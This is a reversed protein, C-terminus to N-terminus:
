NQLPRQGMPMQIPKTCGWHFNHGVECGYCWKCCSVFGYICLNPSKIDSSPTIRVRPIKMKANGRGEFGQISIYFLLSKSLLRRLHRAPFKKKKKKKKRAVGAAYALPLIPPVAALRHWLWAIHIRLGSLLALSRVWM